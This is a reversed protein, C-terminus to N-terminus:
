ISLVCSYSDSDYTIISWIIFKVFIAIGCQMKLTVCVHVQVIDCHTIQEARHLDHHSPHTCTSPGWMLNTPFRLINVEKETGSKGQLFMVSYTKQLHFFITSTMTNPRLDALLMRVMTVCLIEGFTELDSCHSTEM